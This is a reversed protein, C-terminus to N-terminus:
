HVASVCVCVCVCVKGECGSLLCYFAWFLFSFYVRSSESHRRTRRDVAHVSSARGGRVESCWHHKWILARIPPCSVRHTHTHTAAPRDSLWQGKSQTVPGLSQVHSVREESNLMLVDKDRFHTHTHTHSLTYFISPPYSLFLMSERNKLWLRQEVLGCNLLVSYFTM